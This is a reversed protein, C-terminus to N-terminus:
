GHELDSAAAELLAALGCTCRHAPDCNQDHRAYRQLAQAFRDRHEALLAARAALDRASRTRRRSEPGIWSTPHVPQARDVTLATRDGSAAEASPDTDSALQEAVTALADIDVGLEVL